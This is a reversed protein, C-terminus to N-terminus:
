ITKKQYRYFSLLGNLFRFSQSDGFVGKRMDWTSILFTEELRIISEAAGILDESTPLMFENQADNMWEKILCKFVILFHKLFNFEIKNRDYNQNRKIQTKGDIDYQNETFYSFFMELDHTLTKLVIFSNIPNAM